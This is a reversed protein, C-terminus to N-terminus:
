SYTKDKSRLIDEIPNFTEKVQDGVTESDGKLNIM